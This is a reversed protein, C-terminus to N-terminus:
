LRRAQMKARIRRALRVVLLFGVILGVARQFDAWYWIAAFLIVTVGCGILVIRMARRQYDLLKGSRGADLGRDRLRKMIAMAAQTHEGSDRLRFQLAALRGLKHHSVALSEQWDANAPDSAALRERIAKSENFSRFAAACDGQAWAIEGLRDLSDSLDRQWAANAADSATLRILVSNCGTYSRLAAALDGQKASIEGLRNLSVALDRQYAANAPDSAALRERIAKSENFFRFATGLGGQAGALDGLRNLSVALDRQRQANAPDSVALSKLIVTHETYPRLATNPYGQLAALNCQAAALDLQREADAPDNAALRERIAKCESFSRLAAAIDGQAVAIEGLKNLSVSLGRQWEANAPDIATLRERIDKSETFSRSAAALDGKAVELNGLKEQSVSLDRQWEANAPDSAALRSIVGHVVALFSATTPLARYTAIKESMFISANALDRVPHGALWHPAAALLADLEWDAPATQTEYITWARATLHAELAAAPTTAVPATVGAVTQSAAANQGESGLEAALTRQLLRHMTLVEPQPSPHLLRMGILARILDTWPDREAIPAATALAPHFQRAVARLWPLPVADPPLLAAIQLVTRTPADLRALTPRITAAVERLQRIADGPRAGPDAEGSGALDLRLKELYDPIRVAHRPDAIRPDNQGLYVAATEVALTLGGLARVIERAAAEDEASAFATDPQYGRILDLAQDEQLQDVNVPVIAAQAAAFEEPALRTTVLLRLGTEGSLVKMQEPALLAPTDVNDLLLLTPGRPRLTDLVRRAALDERNRETETLTIGLDTVLSTLAGKMEARGECRILWCGGPFAAAERHAFALALATKGMGGVGVLAVPAPSLADLLKERLQRLEAERGVFHSHPWALNGRQSRDQALLRLNQAVHETLRTLEARAAADQLAVSGGTSWSHFSVGFRQRLENKWQRLREADGPADLRAVEIFWLCAAGAGVQGRELERKLWEEWEWRCAESSLYAPSLLVIFFQSARLARHCRVQWHDFDRLDSRDLFIEVKRQLLRQFDAELQEHLASVIGGVDDSHAYSIFLDFTTQDSPV